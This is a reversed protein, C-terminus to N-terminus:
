ADGTPKYTGEEILELPAPLNGSMMVLSTDLAQERTFHGHIIGGDSMQTQIFPATRVRGDLVVAIYRRINSGTWRAFRAAAEPKLRFYVELNDPRRPFSIDWPRAESVDDGSIIPAREVVLFGGKEEGGDYPLVEGAAGAPVEARTRYVKLPAPNGPSVVPRVEMGGALLVSKVRAADRPAEVNVRVRGPEGERTVGCRVFLKRCRARLVEITRAVAADLRPPEARVAVVLFIGGKEERAPLQPPAARPADAAAPSLLLALAAHTSLRITLKWV